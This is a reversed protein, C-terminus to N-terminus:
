TELSQIVRQFTIFKGNDDHTKQKQSPGKQYDIAIRDAISALLDLTHKRESKTEKLELALADIRKSMTGIQESQIITTGHLSQFCVVLQKYHDTFTRTDINFNDVLKPAQNQMAEIPLAPANCTAFGHKIEQQWAEFTEQTVEQAGRLADNIRHVVQHHDPNNNTNEPHSKLLASVLLNRISPSWEDDKDYALFLINTFDDLQNHNTIVDQLTPPQGGLITDGAKSHWNSVVKGAQQSMRESGTVYDFITLTGRVAWGTRFIQVFGAISSEGMKQNSGKKGHHSSRKNNILEALAKFKILLDNFCEMWFAPVKSDIKGKLNTNLAKSAFKPFLNKDMGYIPDM